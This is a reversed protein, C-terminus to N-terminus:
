NAIASCVVKQSSNVPMMRPAIRKPMADWKAIGSAPQPKAPFPTDSLCCATWSASVPVSLQSCHGGRRGEHNYFRCLGCRTIECNSTAM